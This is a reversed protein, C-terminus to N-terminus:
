TFTNRRIRFEFMWTAPIDSLLPESASVILRLDNDLLEGRSSSDLELLANICHRQFSPVADFVTVGETERAQYLCRTWEKSKTPSSSARETRL